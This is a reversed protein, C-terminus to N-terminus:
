FVGVPPVPLGWSFITIFLTRLLGLVGFGPSGSPCTQTESRGGLSESLDQFLPFCGQSHQPYSLFLWLRLGQPIWVVEAGVSAGIFISSRSWSTRARWLAGFPSSGATPEYNVANEFITLPWLSSISPYWLSEEM